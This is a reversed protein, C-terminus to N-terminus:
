MYNHCYLAACDKCTHTTHIIPTSILGITKHIGNQESLNENESLTTTTTHVANEMQDEAVEEQGDTASAM